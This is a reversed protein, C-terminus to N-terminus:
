EDGFHIETNLGAQGLSNIFDAAPDSEDDEVVIVPAPVGPNQKMFMKIVNEFQVGTCSYVRKIEPFRTKILTSVQVFRPDAGLSRAENADSGAIIIYAGEGLMKLRTTDLIQGM